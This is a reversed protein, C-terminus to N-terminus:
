GHDNYKKFEKMLHRMKKELRNKKLRNMKQVVTETDEKERRSVIHIGRRLSVTLLCLSFSHRESLFCSYYINQNQLKHRESM